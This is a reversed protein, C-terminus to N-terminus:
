YPLIMVINLMIMIHLMLRSVTVEPTFSDGIDLTVSSNKAKISKVPVYESQEIFSIRDQDYDLNEVEVGNIKM